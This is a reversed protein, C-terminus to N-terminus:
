GGYEFAVVKEVDPHLSQHVPCTNAAREIIARQEVPVPKPVRITLTLKGIRRVPATVMEKTVHATAGTIDINHRQAYIGMVTLMCSGLAAGLLDTPSFAEGRGQNDKPADTSIVNGSPGHTVSCHLQGEYVANMEVM